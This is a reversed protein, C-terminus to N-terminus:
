KAISVRINDIYVNIEANGNIKDDNTTLTPYFCLRTNSTVQFDTTYTPFSQGFANDGVNNSMTQTFYTTGYDALQSTYDKLSLGDLYQGLAVGNLPNNTDSHAALNIESGTLELTSSTHKYMAADFQVKINITKGTKIGRTGNGLPPTDVRGYHSSAFTLKVFYLNVTVSQKRSNIRMAGKKLWYRAANWGNTPMAGDLSVGPQEQESQEYNNDGYSESEAVNQFDEFLLYPVDVPTINQLFYPKITGLNVSNEVVANDSDFVLKWNTNSYTSASMEGNYEWTYRNESNRYYTGMNAGNNDYLTFYNFDEGLYNDGISFNFATYKEFPPMAMRIPTVRGREMERELPYTAVESRQEFGTIKYSVNGSVTGPLVFVWIDSGVAFGEDSKVTITNSTNTYTPEANPNAVDLTIDGAVPNPFTIEVSYVKDDFNSSKEPITIKLAHMQHRMVTNLEVRKSSTLAGEVVPEALMIDYRGDYTGNQVAPLTYTAQTGNTSKPIPYSLMYTYEGEEMAAINSTFYAKDYAESYYRLMFEANEFAYRGDARMAWVALKDGPTWRTTEGDPDLSTRTADVPMSFGVEYVESPVVATEIENVCSALSLFVVALLSINKFITM